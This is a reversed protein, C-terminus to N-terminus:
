TVAKLSFPFWTPGRTNNFIRYLSVCWAAYEQYEQYKSYKESVESVKWYMKEICQKDLGTM